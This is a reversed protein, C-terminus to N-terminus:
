PHPSNATPQQSNATPKFESSPAYRHGHRLHPRFGFGEDLKANIFLENCVYDTNIQTIQPSISRLQWPCATLWLNEYIGTAIAKRNLSHWPQQLFCLFQNPLVAWLSQNHRYRDWICNIAYTFHTLVLYIAKNLDRFRTMGDNAAGHTTGTPARSVDRSRCM